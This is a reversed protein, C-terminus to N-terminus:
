MGGFTGGDSYHQFNEIIEQIMPSYGGGGLVQPYLFVVPCVTKLVQITLKEDGGYRGV